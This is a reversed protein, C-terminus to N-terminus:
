LMVVTNTKRGLTEPPPASQTFRAFSRGASSSRECYRKQILRQLRFRKSSSGQENRSCCGKCWLREAYHTLPKSPAEASRIGTGFGDTPAGIVLRVPRGGCRHTSGWAPRDLKLMSSRTM